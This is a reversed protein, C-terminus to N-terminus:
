GSLSRVAAIRWGATTRVLQVRHLTPHDRPLPRASTAGAARVRVPRLRDVVRLAVRTDAEACVRVDLLRLRAGRVTLGRRAYADLVARDRRLVTSGRLYVDTLGASDGSAFARARSRDLDRLV